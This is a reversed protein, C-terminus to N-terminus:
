ATQIIVEHRYELVIDLVIVINLLLDDLLLLSLAFFLEFFLSIALLLGFLLLLLLLLLRAALRFAERFHSNWFGHVEIWLGGIGLLFAACRSRHAVRWIDHVSLEVEQVNALLIGLLAM